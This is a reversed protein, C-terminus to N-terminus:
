ELKACFWRSSCVFSIKELAYTPLYVTSKNDYTLVLTEFEASNILLKKLGSFIGIGYNVHVIYDGIKLSHYDSIKNKLSFRQKYKVVKRLGFIDAESFILLKADKLLFSESLM